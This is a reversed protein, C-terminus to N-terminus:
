LYNEEDNMFDENDINNIVKEYINCNISKFLNINLLSLTLLKYDHQSIDNNKVYDEIYCDGMLFYDNLYGLLKKDNM